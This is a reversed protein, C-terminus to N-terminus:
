NEKIFKAFEFYRLVKPNISLILDSTEFPTWFVNPILSTTFVKKVEFHLYHYLLRNHEM